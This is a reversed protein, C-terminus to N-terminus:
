SLILILIRHSASCPCGERYNWAKGVLEEDKIREVSPVPHGKYIKEELALSLLGV